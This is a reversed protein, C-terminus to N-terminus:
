VMSPLGQDVESFKVKATSGILTHYWADALRLCKKACGCVAEDDSDGQEDDANEGSASTRGHVVVGNHQRKSFARGRAPPAKRPPESAKNEIEIFLSRSVKLPPRENNQSLGAKRGSSSSSSSSGAAAAAAADRRVGTGAGRGLSGRRKARGAGVAAKRRSCMVRVYGGGYAPAVAAEAAANRPGKRGSDGGGKALLGRFEGCEGAQGEEKEDNISPMGGNHKTNTNAGLHRSPGGTVLAHRRGALATEEIEGESGWTEEEASSFGDPLDFWKLQQQQQQGGGKGGGGAGGRESCASGSGYVSGGSTWSGHGSSGHVGCGCGCSSSSSSGSNGVSSYSHCSFGSSRRSGGSGESGGDGWGRSPLTMPPTVTCAYSSSSSTSCSASSTRKMATSATTSSCCPQQQQQQQQAAGSGIRCVM